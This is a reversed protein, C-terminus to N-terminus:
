AQKAAASDDDTPSAEDPGAEEPESVAATAAGTSPGLAEDDPDRLLEEVSVEKDTVAAIELM